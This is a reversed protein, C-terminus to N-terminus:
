EDSKQELLRRPRRQIDDIDKHFEKVYKKNADRFNVGYEAISEQLENVDRKRHATGDIYRFYRDLSRGWWSRRGM